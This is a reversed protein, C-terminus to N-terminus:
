DIRGLSEAITSAGISVFSAMGLLGSEGDAGGGVARALEVGGSGMMLFADGIGRGAYGVGLVGHCCCVFPTFPPVESGVGDDAPFVVCTRARNVLSFSRSRRSIM